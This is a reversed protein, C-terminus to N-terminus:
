EWRQITNMKDKHVESLFDRTNRLRPITTSTSLAWVAGARQNTLTSWTVQISAVSQSSILSRSTRTHTSGTMVQRQLHVTLVPQPATLSKGVFMVLILIFIWCIWCVFKTEKMSYYCIYLNDASQLLNKKLIPHSILVWRQGLSEHGEMTRNNIVDHVTVM